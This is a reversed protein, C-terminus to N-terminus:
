FVHRVEPYKDLIALVRQNKRELKFTSNSYLENLITAAKIGTITVRYLGGKMLVTKTTISPNISQCYQLFQNCLIESGCLYVKPRDTKGISGDGDIVGRWFHKDNSMSDPAFEKTSKRPTLGLNQLSESIAKVTFCLSSSKWGDKSIFNNVNSNLNLESKLSEIIHADSSELQLNVKGSDSITGDALLLGYFYSSGESKNEFYDLIVGKEAKRALGHRINVGAKRLNKAVCERSVHYRSSIETLIAGSKYLEVM